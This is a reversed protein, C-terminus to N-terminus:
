VCTSLGEDIVLTAGYMAKVEDLCLFLIASAMEAPPSYTRGSPTAAKKAAMIATNASDNREEANLATETNGPAIANIHIGHPALAGALAKTLMIVSAKTASYVPYRPSGRVGAVSAVNVIHGRGRAKMGPIVANITFFTGKLNIDVMLDFDAEATEGIETPFYVGASNVLIDIPGLDREVQEILAGIAAVQRIDTAYAQARGGAAVIRDAVAGAKAISGSAVVAVAAGESAFLTATAEGIGSSGGFILATRGALRTM